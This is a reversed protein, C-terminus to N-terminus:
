LDILCPAVDNRKSWPTDMSQLVNTHVQGLTVVSVQARHHVREIALLTDAGGSSLSTDAKFPAHCAAAQM